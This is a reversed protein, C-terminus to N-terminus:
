TRRLDSGGSYACIIRIVAVFSASGRSTRSQKLSLVSQLIFQARIPGTKFTGHHTRQFHRPDLIYVPLVYTGQHQQAKLSAQYLVPSDHIRLDNRLWACVIKAMTVETRSGQM